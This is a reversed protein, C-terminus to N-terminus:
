GVKGTAIMQRMEAISVVPLFRVFLLFGAGFLGLTGALTGFDVWTPAYDGWASPLNTRHLVAVVIGFRELWMGVVASLGVAGLVWPRLRAGRWCLILPVACNMLLTLWYVTGYLGFIRELFQRREVEGGSYFIDFADMVYCYSVALSAVLLLRGLVDLHRETVYDHLGLLARLPLLLVLVVGFGSLAAGFVFFPPYQTSYWGPTAAAAFDLGVISHVSVVLPAMIGAIVGYAAHYRRWQAGTGRFGLALVGYFLQAGRGQAQDRLAALDPMLGLFWFVVSSFVYALIAIFDWLLPSRFQPWLTMTNPYPFLWYFFWPRGLHIIPFIGACLAAFITMSEAIRNVSTRWSSRTLFFLSSVLTGGSAIGIWWVYNILDFGWMVPWDNGWAQVGHAFLTGVSLAGVGLMALALGFAAWWWLPTRRDLTIAAIRDTVSAPTEGPSVVPDFPV